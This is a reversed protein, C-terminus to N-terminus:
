MEPHSINDSGVFTFNDKFIALIRLLFIGDFNSLNHIYIITSHKKLTFISDIAELLMKTPTKYNNLYFSRKNKGDYTCICYPIMKQDITRTEIDLTMINIEKKGDKTDSTIFKVDEINKIAVLKGDTYLYEYKNIVRNFSNFGKISVDTFEVIENNDCTIKIKHEAETITVNYQYIVNEKTFEIIYINGTQKIINGRTFINMNNPLDYGFINTSEINFSEPNSVEHIISNEIAIDKSVLKYKFIISTIQQTHYEDSKIILISTLISTLKVKDQFNITNVKGLSKLNSNYDLVTIVSVYQNEELNSM